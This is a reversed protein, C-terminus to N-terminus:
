CTGTHAKTLLDAGAPQTADPLLSALVANI